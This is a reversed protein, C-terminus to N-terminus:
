GAEKSSHASQSRDLRNIVSRKGSLDGQNV